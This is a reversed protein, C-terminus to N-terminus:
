TLPLKSFSIVLSDTVHQKEPHTPDKLKRGRFLCVFNDLHKFPLQYLESGWDERDVTQPDRGCLWMEGCHENCQLTLLANLCNVNLYALMYYYINCVPYIYHLCKLKQTFTKSLQENIQLCTETNHTAPEIGAPTQLICVFVVPQTCM